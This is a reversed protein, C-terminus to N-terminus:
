LRDRLGAVEDLAELLNREPDWPLVAIEDAGAQRVAEAYAQLGKPTTYPVGFVCRPGAADRGAAAWADRLRATTPVVEELPLNWTIWGDGHRAARRLAGPSQGGVIIPPHPSQLPKPLSLVDRFTVFEGEHTAPDDQWLRIMAALYDDARAGRTGFPIEMAAYEEPSWGLGIGLDLRGGCLHDLSAVQKALVLPNREPLILIGTALRIRSTASAAAALVILPDFWGRGPPLEPYGSASYPYNRGYEEFLVVHDPHWFSRFGLDEVHKAVRAADALTSGPQGDFLAILGIDM